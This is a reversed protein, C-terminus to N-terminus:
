PHNVTTHRVFDRLAGVAESRGEALDTSISIQAAPASSGLLRVKAQVFKTRVPSGTFEGGVWYWCWVLRQVPGSRIVAQNVTVFHHDMPITIREIKGGTWLRRDSVLNWGRVIPVGGHHISYYAVFLDVKENGNSYRQLAQSVSGNSHPMWGQRTGSIVRWPPSVLFGTRGLDTEPMRDSRAAAFSYCSVVVLSLLAPFVLRKATITRLDGTSQEQSLGPPTTKVCPPVDEDLDSWGIALTVLLASIATFFFWGYIIHDVRHAFGGDTIQSLVIISYARLGNAIVPVLICASMLVLRRRWSRFVWYSLCTGLVLSAILYRVGSCAEAVEWTGSPATIIRGELLVPVRSVQLLAVAFWATLDQLPSVLSDGFPVAFYLFLLPFLLARVAAVGLVALVVCELMAILAFQQVMRVSGLYGALWVGGLGALLLLAWYEPFLPISWLRRRRLWIIGFAIPLILFGHSFTADSSWTRELSAVTSRLMGCTFALAPVLVATAWLWQTKYQERERLLASNSGSGQNSTIVNM